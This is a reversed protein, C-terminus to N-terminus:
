MVPDARWADALHTPWCRPRVVVADFRLECGGFGPHSKIFWEAARMLRRQQQPLIAWLGAEHTPRAKIEVFALVNGRRVVLDIEGAGSGRPARVRRAIVRYGKLRLAWAALTEARLGRRESARGTDARNV